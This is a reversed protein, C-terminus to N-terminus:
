ADRDMARAIGVLARGILEKVSHRSIGMRQAIADYTMHEFRHFQFAARARPPLALIADVARQYEERGIAIREPSLYDVADVDAEIPDHLQARRAARRRHYSVLVNRAVTFTYREPDAVPEAVHAAQLNAFVEQVLDDVDGADVRRRFYRQLGGGYTQTWVGLDLAGGAPGTMTLHTRAAM